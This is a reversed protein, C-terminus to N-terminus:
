LSKSRILENNINELEAIILTPEVLVLVPFRLKM